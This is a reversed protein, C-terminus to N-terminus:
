PIRPGGIGRAESDDKVEHAAPGVVEKRRVKKMRREEEKYRKREGDNGRSDGHKASAEKREKQGCRGTPGRLDERQRMGGETLHGRIGILEGKSCHEISERRGDSRERM